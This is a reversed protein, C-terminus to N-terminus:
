WGSHTSGSRPNQNGGDRKVFTDCDYRMARSSIKPGTSDTSVNRVGLSATSFAFLVGYPSEAPTQVSLPERIRHIASRMRAPTTQAFIKLLKSGLEGNPPYLSDSKTRSTPTCPWSAYRSRSHNLCLSSW